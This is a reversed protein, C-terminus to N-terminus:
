RGTEKHPSKRFRDLDVKEVRWHGGERWGKLQGTMVLRLTSQYSRRLALAADSLPVTKPTETM